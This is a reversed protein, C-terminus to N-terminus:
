ITLRCRLARNSCTRRWLIDLLRISLLARILNIPGDVKGVLWYEEIHVFCLPVLGKERIDELYKIVKKMTAKNTPMLPGFPHKIWIYHDSEIKETKKNKM